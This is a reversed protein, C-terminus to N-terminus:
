SHPQGFVDAERLRVGPIGRQTKGAVKRPKVCDAPDIGFHKVVESRWTRETGPLRIGPRTAVHKVDANTVFGDPASEFYQEIWESYPNSEERYEDTASSVAQPVPLGDAFYDVAGRVAWAIIGEAHEPRLLDPKLTKDERGVFSQDWPVCLFRAWIGDDTGRITPKDNGSLVLLGTPKFDYAPKHKPDATLTDAAVYAKIFAEDLRASTMESSLVLRAGHLKGVLSGKRGYRTLEWFDGNMTTVLPSGFIENLTETLVGKGNRGSGYFFALKEERTSGSLGYGILRQIFTRMGADPQSASLYNDWRASHAGARYNYGVAYTILDGPSHPRLEGTRLNVTGNAFNLAYPDADLDAVNRRLGCSPAKAEKLIKDIRGSDRFVKAADIFVASGTKAHELLTNSVDHVMGRAISQDSSTDNAWHTGTWAFWGPGDVYVLRGAVHEAFFQARDVDGGVKPDLIRVREPSITM